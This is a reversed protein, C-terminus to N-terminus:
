GRYPLKIDPFFYRADDRSLKCGWKSVYELTQQETYDNHAGIYAAWDIGKSICAVIALHTGQCNWFRAEYKESWEAEDFKYM